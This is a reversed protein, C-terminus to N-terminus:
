VCSFCLFKNEDGEFVGRMVVVRSCYRGERLANEASFSAFMTRMDKSCTWRLDFMVIM